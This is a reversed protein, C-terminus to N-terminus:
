AGAGVAIDTRTEEIAFQAPQCKVVPNEGFRAVGIIRQEFPQAEQGYRAAIEVFEHHDAHSPQDPLDLAPDVLRRDVSQGRRLLKGFNTCPEGRQVFTLLSRQAVKAFHECFRTDVHGVIAADVALRMFPQPPMEEVFDHRHNCRLREVRCVGKGENGIFPQAHQEGHAALLDLRVLFFLQDLHHQDGRGQRAEQAHRPVLRDIDPDLVEDGAKGFM